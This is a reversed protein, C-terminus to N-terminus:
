PPTFACASRRVSSRAWASSSSGCGKRVASRDSCSKRSCSGHPMRVRRGAPGRRRLRRHRRRAARRLRQDDVSVAARHGAGRVRARRARHRRREGAGDSRSPRHPRWQHARGPPRRRRRRRVARHSGRHSCGGEVFEYRCGDPLNFLSAYRETALNDLMVIEAGPWAVALERILRSGIHGLAGTVVVRMSFAEITRDIGDTLSWSPRWGTAASFRSPDAVFHRQEIASLAAPRIPRRRGARAPRDAAEVRAAILEFADRISIGRGSGIVFHRGNVRDPTSLPWSFRM